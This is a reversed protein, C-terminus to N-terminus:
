RGEIRSQVTRELEDGTLLYPNSEVPNETLEFRAERQRNLEIEETTFNETEINGCWCEYQVKIEESHPAGMGMKSGCTGCSKSM